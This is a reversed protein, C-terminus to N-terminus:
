GGCVSSLATRKGDADTIQKYGKSPLQYEVRLLVAIKDGQETVVEFHFIAPSRLTTKVTFSSLGTRKIAVENDLGRQDRNWTKLCNILTTVRQGNEPAKRDMQIMAATFDNESVWAARSPAALTMALLCLTLVPLILKRLAIMM